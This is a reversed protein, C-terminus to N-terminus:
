LQKLTSEDEAKNDKISINYYKGDRRSRSLIKTTAGQLVALPKYKSISEEHQYDVCYLPCNKSLSRGGSWLGYWEQFGNPSEFFSVAATKCLPSSTKSDLHHFYIAKYLLFKYM